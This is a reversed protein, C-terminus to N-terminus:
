AMVQILFLFVLFLLGEKKVLSFLSFVKSDCHIKFEFATLPNLLRPVLYQVYYVQTQDKETKTKHRPSVLKKKM